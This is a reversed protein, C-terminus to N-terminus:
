QGGFKALLLVIAAAAPAGIWQILRLAGRQSAADERLKDCEARLRVLEAKQDAQEREVVTILRELRDVTANLAVELRALQVETKDNTTTTTTM